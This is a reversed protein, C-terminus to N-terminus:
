LLERGTEVYARASQLLAVVLLVGWLLFWPDWVFAHWRFLDPDDARVGAIQLQVALGIATMCVGYLSILGAAVWALWRVPARLPADFPVVVAAIGLIVAILFLVALVLSSMRFTAGDQKAQGILHSGYRDVWRHGGAAWYVNLAAYGLGLVAALIAAPLGRRSRTTTTTTPTTSTGTTM